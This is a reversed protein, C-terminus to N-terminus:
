SRTGPNVIDDVHNSIPYHGHNMIQRKESDNAGLALAMRGNIFVGQILIRGM